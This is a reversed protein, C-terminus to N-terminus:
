SAKSRLATPDCAMAVPQLFPGQYSDRPTRPIRGSRKRQQPDDTGVKSAALLRDAVPPPHPLLLGVAAVFGKSSHCGYNCSPGPRLQQPGLAPLNQPSRYLLTLPHPAENCKLISNKGSSISVVPFRNTFEKRRFLMLSGSCSPRCTKLTLGSSLFVMWPRWTGPAARPIEGPFLAQSPPTPYLSIVPLPCVLCPMWSTLPAQAKRSRSLTQSLTVALAGTKLPLPPWRLGMTKRSECGHSLVVVVCCDLASHDRRALEVLAQVMQKATLDRKVEVTFRLLCFRRQLKECDINSGGRATLRSEPCFNVNNIILCYGCPDANLAYALDGNGKSIEQVCVDSFPGSGNDTPRPVLPRVVQPQLEAPGLVVPALKGPTLKSPDKGRLDEPTLRTPGLVVPMLDLPRTAEPNQKVAQRSMRLCSALADQGTDELCSIFLPLAQSGRTELDTVLQRAQDSRSGSGAHQMDEVMAATFLERSLLADWLAAVQLERVLRVRCRRLAGRDAEDM